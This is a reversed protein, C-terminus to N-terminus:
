PEPAAHRVRRARSHHAREGPREGAAARGGPARPAARAGREPVRPALLAHAVDAGLAEPGHGCVDGVMLAVRHEDLAFVDYFDGGAAPGEAPRYAVSLELPGIAPPVEPLLMRQLLGIDGLLVQRQRELRKARRATVFSRAAFGLAALALVAILVKVADPIVEVIERVTRTVANGEDDAAPRRAAARRRRRRPM